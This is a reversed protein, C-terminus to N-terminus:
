DVVLDSRDFDGRLDIVLDLDLTLQEPHVLQREFDFDLRGKALSMPWDLHSVVLPEVSVVSILPHASPRPEENASHLVEHLKEGPRLGTYTIDIPEDAEEALRRAVDAIRVPEGM